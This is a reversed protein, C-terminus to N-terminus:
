NGHYEEPFEQRIKMSLVAADYWTLRHEPNSAFQSLSHLVETHQGAAFFWIFHQGYKSLTLSYVDGDRRFTIIGVEEGCDQQM